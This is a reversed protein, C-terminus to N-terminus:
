KLIEPIPHWMSYVTSAKTDGLGFIAEKTKVLKKTESDVQVWEEKSTPYFVEVSYQKREPAYVLVPTNLPVTDISNWKPTEERPAM